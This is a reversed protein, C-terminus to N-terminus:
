IREVGQIILKFNIWSKDKEKNKIKKIKSTQTVPPETLFNLLQQWNKAKIHNINYVTM